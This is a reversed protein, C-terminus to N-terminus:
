GLRVPLSEGYRRRYVGVQDVSPTPSTTQLELIVGMAQMWPTGVRYIQSPLSEVNLTTSYYTAHYEDHLQGASDVHQLTGLPVEVLLAYSFADLRKYIRVSSVYPAQSDTPVDLVVPM